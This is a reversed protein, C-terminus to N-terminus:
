HEKPELLMEPKVKEFSEITSLPNLNYIGSDPWRGAYWGNSKFVRWLEELEKQWLFHRNEMQRGDGLLKEVKYKRHKEPKWSGDCYYVDQRCYGDVGLLLIRQAGLRWALCIGTTAVTRDIFLTEDRPKLRDLKRERRFERIQGHSRFSKENRLNNMAGKSCVITVGSYDVKLYRKWLHDDAFLHYTPRFHVVADNLAITRRGDLIRWDFGLLSSGTGVVYVDNGLEVDLLDRLSKV